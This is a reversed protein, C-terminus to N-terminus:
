PRPTSIIPRIYERIGEGFPIPVTNYADYFPTGERCFNEELLMALQTNTIPFFPFREFLSVVPKMLGLPVHMLRVDRNMALGIELLIENYTMPRPGGVDFAINVPEYTLAKVFVDSVTRLSVPQLRYQGDGIVPTLPMRVLGALMNVFEDEPGFIVSPRFIVYPMGSQRVLEESAWKTQFYMTSAGPRAGLASMHIFRKGDKAFGARICADVIAKTGETHVREFTVGKEPNERIIGILHIIADCEALSSFYTEPQLLDGEVLRVHNHEAYTKWLLSNKRVLCTVNYGKALLEPLIGSGVFGSAGTLFVQM